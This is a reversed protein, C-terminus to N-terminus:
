KSILHKETTASLQLFLSALLVLNHPDKGRKSNEPKAVTTADAGGGRVM